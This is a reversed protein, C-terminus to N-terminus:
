QIDELFRVADIKWSDAHSFRVLGLKGKFAKRGKNQIIMDIEVPVEISLEDTLDEVPIIAMRNLNINEIKEITKKESIEQLSFASILSIDQQKFATIFASIIEFPDSNAAYENLKGAAKLIMLKHSLDM